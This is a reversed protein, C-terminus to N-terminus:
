VDLESVVIKEDIIRAVRASDTSRIRSIVAIKNAIRVRGFVAINGGAVVEAGLSIDGLIVVDGECEIREGSAISQEIFLSNGEAGSKSPLNIDSSLASLMQRPEPRKAVSEVIQEDVFIVDMLSYKDSFMKKLERKQPASLAKGYMVVPLTAGIYFRANADFKKSMAFKLAAYEAREDMWVELAEHTAKVTVM